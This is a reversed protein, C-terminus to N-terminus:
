NQKIEYGYFMHICLFSKVFRVVTLLRQGNKKSNRTELNIVKLVCCLSFTTWVSHSQFTNNWHRVEFAALNHNYTHTCTSTHLNLLLIVHLHCDAVYYLCLFSVSCVPMCATTHLFHLVSMFSYTNQSEFFSNPLILLFYLILKLIHVNWKKDQMRRVLETFNETAYLKKKPLPIM